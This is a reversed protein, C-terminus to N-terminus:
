DKILLGEYLDTGTKVSSIELHGLETTLFAYVPEADDVNFFYSYYYDVGNKTTITTMTVTGETRTLAMTVTAGDLLTPFDDWNYTNSLNADDYYGTLSWGYNDARLVVYEFYTSDAATGHIGDGLNTFALVWNNWNLAGDCNYNTFEIITQTSDAVLEFSDSFVSWWTATNDEAGVTTTTLTSTIDSTTGAILGYVPDGPRFALDLGGMADPISIVLKFETESVIAGTVTVAYDAGNMTFTGEGTVATGDVTLDATATGYSSEYTLTNSTSTSSITATQETLVGTLGLGSTMNIWGSYTGALSVVEVVEEETADETADEAATADETAVVEEEDDDECAQFGVCLALVAMSFLFKKM